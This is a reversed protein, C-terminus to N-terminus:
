GSQFYMCLCEIFINQRGFKTQQRNKSVTQTTAIGNKVPIYANADNDDDDNALLEKLGHTWRDCKPLPRSFKYGCIFSFHHAYKVLTLNTRDSIPPPSFSADFPGRYKKGEFNSSSFLTFIPLLWMM